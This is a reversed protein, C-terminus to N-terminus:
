GSARQLASVTRVISVIKKPDTVSIEYADERITHVISVSISGGSLVSGAMRRLANSFANPAKPWRQLRGTTDSAVKSL